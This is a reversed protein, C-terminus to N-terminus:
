LNSCPCEFQLRSGCFKNSKWICTVHSVSTSGAATTLLVIHTCYVRPLSSHLSLPCYFQFLGARVMNRRDRSIHATQTCYTCTQANIAVSVVWARAVGVTDEVLIYSVVMQYVNAPTTNVANNLNVCVRCLITRRGEITSQKLRQVHAKEEKM